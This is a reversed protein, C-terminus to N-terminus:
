KRCRWSKGSHIPVKHMHHRTCIDRARHARRSVLRRGIDDDENPVAVVAPMKVPPVVNSEPHKPIPGPEQVPRWDAERVPLPLRDQKKLLQPEPEQWREEFQAKVVSVVGTPRSAAPAEDRPSAVIGAMVGSLAMAGAIMLIKSPFCRTRQQDPM